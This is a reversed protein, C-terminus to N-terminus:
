MTLSLCTPFSYFNCVTGKITIIFDTGLLITNLELYLHHLVPTVMLYYHKTERDPPWRVVYLVIAGPDSGEGQLQKVAIPLPGLHVAPLVLLM